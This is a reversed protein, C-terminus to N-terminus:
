HAAANSLLKILEFNRVGQGAQMDPDTVQAGAALLVRVCETCETQVALLLPSISNEQEEVDVEFAQRPLASAKLLVQLLAADRTRVANHLMGAQGRAGAQILLMLLEQKWTAVRERERASPKRIGVAVVIHAVSRGTSDLDNVDSGAKVLWALTAAVAKVDVSAVTNDQAAAAAQRVVAVFPTHGENDKDNISAGAKRLLPLIDMKHSLAAMGFSSVGNWNLYTVKAKHELLLKVLKVHGREAAIFLPHINIQTLRANVDAGNAVLVQAVEYHGQQCSLYLAGAGYLSKGARENVNAKERVLLKVLETHGNKAAMILPTVGTPVVKADVQAGHALLEKAIAVSGGRQALLLLATIGDKGVMDVFNWTVASDDCNESSKASSSSSSSSLSTCAREARAQQKSHQLVLKVAKVHGGEMAAHLATMGNQNPTLSAGAELLLKAFVVNGNALALFLTTSEGPVAQDVTVGRQLLRQLVEKYGGIIAAVLPFSGDHLTKSDIKAAKPSGWRDQLLLMAISPHKYQLSLLLPSAGQMSTLQKAGLSLLMEVAELHGNEVAIHLATAGNGVELNKEGYWPQHDDKSQDVKMLHGKFHGTPMVFNVDSGFRALIQIVNSFGRQAAMYLARTDGNLLADVDAACEPSLLAEVATSQNCDAAIHLATGGSSKRINVEAGNRCLLLVAESRGMESAFHLATSGGYAHQTNPDSGGSILAEMVPLFGFSAAIMLSTAGSNGTHEVNAGQEVLLRVAEVHGLSAAMLLPSHNDLNGVDVDLHEEELLLKKLAEVDNRAAAHHLATGGKQVAPVVAFAILFRASDVVGHQAAQYHHWAEEEQLPAPQAGAAVALGYEKADMLGAQASAVVVDWAHKVHDFLESPNSIQHSGSLPLMVNLSDTAGATGVPTSVEVVEYRTLGTPGSKKAGHIQLVALLALLLAVAGAMAAGAAVAAM